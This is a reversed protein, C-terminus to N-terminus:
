KRTVIVWVIVMFELVWIGVARDQEFCDWVNLHGYSFSGIDTQLSGQYKEHDQAYCIWIKKLVPIGIVPDDTIAIETKCSTKV